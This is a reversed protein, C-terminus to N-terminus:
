ICVETARIQTPSHYLLTVNYGPMPRHTFDEEKPRIHVIIVPNGVFFSARLVVLIVM